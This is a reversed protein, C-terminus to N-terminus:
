ELIRGRKGGNPTAESDCSPFSLRIGRVGEPRTIKALMKGLRHARFRTSDSRALGEGLGAYRKLALSELSARRRGALVLRGPAAAAEGTCAGEGEEEDRAEEPEEKEEGRGRLHGATAMAAAGDAGQM